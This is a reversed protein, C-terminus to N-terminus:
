KLRSKHLVRENDSPSFINDTSLSSIHIVWNIWFVYMCVSYVSKVALPTLLRSLLFGFFIGMLGKALIIHVVVLPPSRIAHAHDRGHRM